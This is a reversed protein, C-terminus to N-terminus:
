VRKVKKLLRNMWEYIDNLSGIAINIEEDTLAGGLGRTCLIRARELIRYEEDSLPLSPEVLHRASDRSFDPQDTTGLSFCTAINRISLFVTSLDFVRSGANAALSACSERFLAFFKECDQRCRSYPKPKGLIKLYDNNDSTFLLKSELALHWAFPNGEQWLAMIRDYSYTSYIERNFRSGDENTLALLDVDSDLSIDGRCVSGFAYIHMM